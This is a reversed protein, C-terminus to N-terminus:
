AAADLLRMDLLERAVGTLVATAITMMAASLPHEEGATVGAAPEDEPEEVPLAHDAVGACADPGAKL